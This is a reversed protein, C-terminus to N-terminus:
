QDRKLLLHDLNTRLDDRVGTPHALAHSTERFRHVALTAVIASVILAFLKDAETTSPKV